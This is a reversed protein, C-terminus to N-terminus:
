ELRTHMKEEVQELDTLVQAACVKITTPNYNRLVTGQYVKDEGKNKVSDCVLNATPWLLPDPGAM